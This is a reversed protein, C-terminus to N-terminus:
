LEAGEPFRTEIPILGTEKSLYYGRGLDIDQGRADVLPTGEKTLFLVAAIGTMWLEEPEDYGLKHEACILVHHYSSSQCM